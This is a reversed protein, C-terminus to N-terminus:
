EIEFAVYIMEIRRQVELVVADGKQYKELILQLNEITLVPERNLQCIIDGPILGYNWYPADAARAAVLVGNEKRLVPLIKKLEENIDIVLVGLRPILNKEPTVMDLFRDQDDKSEQVPLWFKRKQEGRLIELQVVENVRKRYINVDFQRGNEM